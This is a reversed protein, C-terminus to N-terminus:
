HRTDNIHMTGKTMLRSLTVAERLARGLGGRVGSEELVMLGGITCGEASTGQDKLLAPHIGSQLLTATGQMSQVIMTNALDRPVGVAVAADILTDCIVAFFAPTSGGVAVTAEMLSPNVHVTKGVKKFILDTLEFYQPPLAPETITIATLSQSVVAAVNPLTCVIWPREYNAPLESSGNGYLVGELKENTWGAAVSILLKNSLADRLGANALLAAVQSPDVGLIIVDSAQVAETNYEKTFVDLQKDNQSFRQVLKVKSDQTRVTAIFRHFPLKEEIHDNSNHNDNKNILGSLIATCLNGVSEVMLHEGGRENQVAQM